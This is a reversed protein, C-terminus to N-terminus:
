DYVKDEDLIEIKYRDSLEDNYQFDKIIKVIEDIAKEKNETSKM